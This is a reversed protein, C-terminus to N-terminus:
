ETLTVPGGDGGRMQVPSGVVFPALLGPVAEDALRVAHDAGVDIVEYGGAGAATTATLTVLGARRQFVTQSVTWGIVGSRQLAVTRRIITGKRILLFRPTLRNGLNRWADLALLVAVPVLLSVAVRPGLSVDPVLWLVVSALVVPGCVRFLRRRLAAPPHRDLNETTPSHDERLVQAAVATATRLPAPPLLSGSGEARRQPGLGSVLASLRGGRGARLLMPEAIEVGRLRREEVSLSRTTLLGRRVRLSGDPERTLRYGWWAEVFMLVSGLVAVGLVLLGFVAIEVGIPWEGLRNRADGGVESPDVDLEGVFQGIGGGVAGVAVLSSVTLPAYRLWAWDLIALVTGAPTVPQPAHERHLLVQRLWEGQAASVADLSLGSNEGASEGTGIKVTVLKFIRHLPGATLDVTRIRDRPVTRRTRFLLGSRMAVRDATVLYRTTAWKVVGAMILLVIAAGLGVARYGFDSSGAVVVIAVVPIFGVLQRMPHVALMKPDLRQWHEVETSM